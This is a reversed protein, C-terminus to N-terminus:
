YAVPQCFSPIHSFGSIVWFKNLQWPWLAAPNLHLHIHGSGRRRSPGQLRAVWQHVADSWAGPNLLKPGSLLGSMLEWPALGISSQFFGKSIVPYYTPLTWCGRHSPCTASSMGQARLETEGMGDRRRGHSVVSSFERGKQMFWSVRETLWRKHNWAYIIFEDGEENSLTLQATTDSEKCGWPSYGALSRQGHFEGPLFVPTPQWKRRWPDEWGLSWVWTEQMAPLNKEM